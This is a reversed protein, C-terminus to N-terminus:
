DTLRNAFSIRVLIPIQIRKEMWAFQYQHWTPLSSIATRFFETTQQGTDPICARTGFRNRPWIDARYGVSSITAGIKDGNWGSEGRGGVSHTLNSVSFRWHTSPAGSRRLQHPRMASRNQPSGSSQKEYETSISSAPVTAVRLEDHADRLEM